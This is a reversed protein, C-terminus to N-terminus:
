NKKNKEETPTQIKGNAWDAEPDEVSVRRVGGRLKDQAM